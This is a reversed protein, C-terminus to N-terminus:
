ALLSRLAPALDSVMRVAVYDGHGRAALARGARAGEPTGGTGLVHLRDLAAAPTLPDGGVTADGDSLLLTVRERAGSAALQRRALRLALALDTAGAGRLALLDRVLADASRPSGPGSLVVAEHNFAIVAGDERERLGLVVGAAAVAALMVQAGRMSGSRDVVLCVARSPARWGRVVLDDAGLAAGDARALSRDLDLDGDLGTRAPSAVLRGIGHRVPEGGRALRLAVRAALREAQRRLAPDTARALDAVLDLAAEPDERELAAFAEPDLQGAGPSVRGFAPHARALRVRSVTRRAAETM